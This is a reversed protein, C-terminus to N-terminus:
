EFQYLLNFTPEMHIATGTTNLWVAVKVILTNDSMLLGGKSVDRDYEARTPQGM